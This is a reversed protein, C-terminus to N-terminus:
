MHKSQLLAMMLPELKRESWCESIWKTGVVIYTWNQQNLQQTIDFHVAFVVYFKFASTSTQESIRVFWM